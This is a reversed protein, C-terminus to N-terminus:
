NISKAFGIRSNGIDYINCYAQIFVDGLIFAPVMGGGLNVEFVGLECVNPAIEDIYYKSPISYQHAGIGLIIPPLKANCPILYIDQEADYNAGAIKAVVDVIAVPAAIFSTGSDSIVQWENKQSFTGYRFSSMVFQWYTEQSLPQWNVQKACNQTDIGGYTYVGGSAGENLSGHQLFITFLPLDLNKQRIAISLPTPVNDESISQFALGLIGDYPDEIFNQSLKNALGFTVNKITLVDQGTMVQLTDQGLVGSAEGLGYQLQFPTDNNLFTRSKSQNFYHKQNCNNQAEQCFSLGPIFLNSSGTDLIVSFVQPPTGLTIEATYEMNDYDKVIQRVNGHNAAKYSILLDNKLKVRDKWKGAKILKKKASPNKHISHKYVAASVVSILILLILTKM